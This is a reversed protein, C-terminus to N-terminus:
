KYESFAKEPVQKKLRSTHYFLPTAPYSVDYILLSLDGGWFGDKRCCKRRGPLAGLNDLYKVSNKYHIATASDVFFYTAKKNVINTCWSGLERIV